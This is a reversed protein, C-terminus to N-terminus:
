AFFSFADHIAAEAPAATLHQFVFFAGAAALALIIILALYFVCRSLLSDTATMRDKLTTIFNGRSRNIEEMLQSKSKELQSWSPFEPTTKIKDFLPGLEELERYLSQKESHVVFRSEEKQPTKLNQFEHGSKKEM